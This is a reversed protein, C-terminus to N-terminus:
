DSTCHMSKVNINRVFIPCLATSCMKYTNTHPLIYIHTCVYASNALLIKGEEQCILNGKLYLKTKDIAKSSTNSVELKGNIKLYNHNKKETVLSFLSKSNSLM